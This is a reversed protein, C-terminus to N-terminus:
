SRQTERWERVAVALFTPIVAGFLVLGLMAVFGQALQFLWGWVM